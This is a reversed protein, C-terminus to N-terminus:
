AKTGTSGYAMQWFGYGANGRGDAGYVINNENFVNEDTDKDKAVLKMKKREQYIIPKIVKSTCLLYWSDEKQALQPEVLLKATGKLINTTGDIQDAELIKRGIYENKPSVVLLDPILKLSKGQEGCVSMISTRAEMYSAESLKADTTNSYTKGEVKHNKSFFPTGDYCKETFGNMLAEYVLEDPYQAASEGLSSFLPTYVGYTDDEIDSRPVKVTVEFEKNKISYDHAALKQVERSGIWERVRPMQGLWAYTQSQTSSQVVTAIQQYTTQTETFAKNFQTSYSTFLGALNGRNIVM